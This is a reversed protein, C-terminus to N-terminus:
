PDSNISCRLSAESKEAAHIVLHDEGHFTSRRQDLRLLDDLDSLAAFGSTRCHMASPIADFFAAGVALIPIALEEAFGTCVVALQCRIKKVM